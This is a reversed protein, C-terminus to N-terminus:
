VSVVCTLQELKRRISEAASRGIEITVAIALTSSSGRALTAGLPAVNAINFIGAVRAFVQPECDAEIVFRFQSVLGGAGAGLATTDGAYVDAAAPSEPHTSDVTTM